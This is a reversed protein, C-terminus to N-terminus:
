LMEQKEEESTNEKQQKSHADMEYAQKTNQVSFHKTRYIQSNVHM